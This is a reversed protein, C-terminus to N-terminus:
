RSAAVAERALAVLAWYPPPYGQAARWAEARRLVEASLADHRANYGRNRLAAAAAMGEPIPGVGGTRERLWSWGKLVRAVPLEHWAYGLRDGRDAGELMADVVANDVHDEFLTTPDRWEAVVALQPDYELDSPEQTEFHEVGFSALWQRLGPRSITSTGMWLTLGQSRYGQSAVESCFLKAPDQYDMAFDYPIHERQARDLMAQAAKHPLQPDAILAPLDPRPRLLMVRLKKDALYGEATTVAVGLEIHAEIVSVARTAPDIHVLAIHSFNGAYDNGRAILASTPYGGRSVLIDGSHLLVGQVVASPTASAVEADQVLAPVMRPQQLIVEEVAARGGYLARYLADRTTRERPDWDVSVRKATSRWTAQLQVFRPVLEACSAVRPALAFFRLGLSDLTAADARRLVQVDTEFRRMEAATSASDACGSAREAAFQAELAAWLSDSGWVFPSGEPPMPPVSPGAAPIVLLLLIALTVGAVAGIRRARSQAAPM